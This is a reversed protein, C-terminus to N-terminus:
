FCCGGGGAAPDHHHLCKIEASPLCFLCNLLTYTYSELENGGFGGPAGPIGADEPM